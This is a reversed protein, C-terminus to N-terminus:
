MEGKAQMIQKYFIVAQEATEVNLKKYISILAHRVTQKSKGKATAIASSELGKALLDLTEKEIETLKSLSKELSAKTTEPTDFRYLDFLKSLILTRTTRQEPDLEDSVVLKERIKSYCTDLHYSIDSDAVNLKKAVEDRTYGSLFLSLVVISKETLTTQSLENHRTTATDWRRPDGVHIDISKLYQVLPSNNYDFFEVLDNFTNM